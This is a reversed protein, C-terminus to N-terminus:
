RDVTLYPGVRVTEESCVVLVAYYSVDGIQHRLEGLTPTTTHEEATGLHQTLITPTSAPRHRLFCEMLYLLRNDSRARPPHFEPFDAEPYREPTIEANYRPKYVVTAMGSSAAAELRRNVTDVPTIDDCLSCAVFGNNLPAGAAAAALQLASVAPLVHVPTNEPPGYIEPHEGLFRFVYSAMGWIGPDGDSVVAVHRGATAADLALRVRPARFGVDDPEAPPDTTETTPPLVPALMELFGHHGIVLDVERLRELNAPPITEAAYSIGVISVSGRTGSHIM